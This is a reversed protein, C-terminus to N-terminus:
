KFAETSLLRNETHPKVTVNGVLDEGVQLLQSFYDHADIKCQKLLMALMIGEPLLGDFFPPFTTYEYKKQTLPMTLSVPQATYNPLYEFTYHTPHWQTLVGALQNNVYIDAQKM